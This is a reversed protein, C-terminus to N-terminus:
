SNQKFAILLSYNGLGQSNTIRQSSNSQTAMGILTAIAPEIAFANLTQKLLDKAHELHKKFFAFLKIWSDQVWLRGM